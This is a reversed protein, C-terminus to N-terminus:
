KTNASKFSSNSEFQPANPTPSVHLSNQKVQNETIMDGHETKTFSTATNSIGEKLTTGLIPGVTEDKSSDTKGVMDEKLHKNQEYENELYKKFEDRFYGDMARWVCASYWLLIVVVFGGRFIGILPIM